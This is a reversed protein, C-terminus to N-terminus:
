TLKVMEAKATSMLYDHDIYEYGEVKPIQMSLLHGEQEWYVMRTLEKFVMGNELNEKNFELQEMIPGLPNAATKRRMVFVYGKGEAEATNQEEWTGKEVIESKVYCLAVDVVGVAVKFLRYDEPIETPVMIYTLQRLNTFDDYQKDEKAIVIQERLSAIDTFCAFDVVSVHMEDEDFPIPEQEQEEQEEEDSQVLASQEPVSREVDGNTCGILCLFLGLAFLMLISRKM